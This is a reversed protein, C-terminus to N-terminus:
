NGNTAERVWFEGVDHKVRSLVAMADAENMDAIDAMMAIVSGAGAM